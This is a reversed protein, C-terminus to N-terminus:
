CETRPTIDLTYTWQNKIINDVEDYYVRTEITLTSFVGAGKTVTTCVGEEGECHMDHYTVSTNDEVIGLCGSPYYTYTTWIKTTPEPSVCVGKGAYVLGAGVLLFLVNTVSRM